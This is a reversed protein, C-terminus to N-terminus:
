PMTIYRNIRWGRRYHCFINGACIRYSIIIFNKSPTPVYVFRNFQVRCSYSLLCSSIRGAGLVGIGALLAITTRFILEKM